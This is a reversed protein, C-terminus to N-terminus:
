TDLGITEVVFETESTDSGEVGQDTADVFDEGDMSSNVQELNKEKDPPTSSINPPRAMNPLSIKDPGLIFNQNQGLCVEMEDHTTEMGQESAVERAENAELSDGIKKNQGMTPENIGSV